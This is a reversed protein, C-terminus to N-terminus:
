QPRGVEEWHPQHDRNWRRRMPEDAPDYRNKGFFVSTKFAEIHGDVFVTNWLGKHRKAILRRSLKIEEGSESKVYRHYDGYLQFYSSLGPLYDSYGIMESPSVVQPERCSSYGPNFRAERGVRVSLGYPNYYGVGFSNIDYNMGYMEVWTGDVTRRSARLPNGPCCYIEDSWSKSCYPALKGTWYPDRDAPLREYYVPYAGFDAVYVSSAIGIQRLNSACKALNASDKARSLTPLLLAALIAIIAIVVLLEILTFANRRQRNRPQVPAPIADCRKSIAGGHYSADPKVVDSITAHM